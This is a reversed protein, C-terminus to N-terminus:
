SRVLIHKREEKTTDKEMKNISLCFNCVEINVRKSSAVETGPFNHFM